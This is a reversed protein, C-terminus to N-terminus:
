TPLGRGRRNDRYSRRYQWRLYAPMLWRDSGAHRDDDMPWLYPLGVADLLLRLPVEPIRLPHDERSVYRLLARLFVKAGMNLPLRWEWWSLHRALALSADALIQRELGEPADKLRQVYPRQPMQGTTAYLRFAYAPFKLVGLRASFAFIKGALYARRHFDFDTPWPLRHPDRWLGVTDILDRRHLWSCPPVFWNGYSAGDAPPGLVGYPGSPGVSAGLAHVFDAGSEEIRAVLTSLHWPLWLDDHGLYAVYRGRARQLGANNPAFQSGANRELNIWRLRADGLSAVAKASDDTCGDGVVWVEFDPYDQDLISQLALRLSASQNYTAVIVTVVPARRPSTGAVM